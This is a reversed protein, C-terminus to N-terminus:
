LNRLCCGLLQGVNGFSEQMGGRLGGLQLSSLIEKLSLLDGSM